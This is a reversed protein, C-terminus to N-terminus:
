RLRPTLLSGSSVGASTLMIRPSLSVARGDPQVNWAPSLSRRLHLLSSSSYTFHPISTPYTTDQGLRRACRVRQARRSLFSFCRMPTSKEGSSQSSTAQSQWNMSLIGAHNFGVLSRLLSEESGRVRRSRGSLTNPERELDLDHSCFIASVFVTVPTM